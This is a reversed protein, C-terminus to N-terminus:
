SAHPEFLELWTLMADCLRAFYGPPADAAPSAEPLGCVWRALTAYADAVTRENALPAAAVHPWFFEHLQIGRAEKRLNVFPDSARSHHVFPRGSTVFLGLHDAIRKLLVGSWIDDFRDFGYAELGMLLNYAAPIAARAYCVNMACLPFHMGPPVVEHRARLTVRQEIRLGALSMVGDLDPVHDWVGHNLLVPLTGRAGYPIGRPEPGDITRFWRDLAFAELHEALFRAGGGDVPLCDDDMTVVYDCGSRWALLMPFSRCAGSRRPIIWHRAGLVRELDAQSTHVLEFGDTDFTGTPAPQDEHVFLLPRQVGVPERWHPLWAALFERM